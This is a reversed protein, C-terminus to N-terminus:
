NSPYILELLRFPNYDNSINIPKPQKITILNILKGIKTQFKLSMVYM